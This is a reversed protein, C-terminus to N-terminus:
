EQTGAAIRRGLRRRCRTGVVAVLDDRQQKGVVHFACVVRNRGEPQVINRHNAADGLDRCQDLRYPCGLRVHEQEIGAVDEGARQGLQGLALQGEFEHDRHAVVGHRDTIVLKFVADLDEFPLLVARRKGHQARVKKVSAGIMRVRLRMRDDLTVANADADDADHPLIGGRCDDGGVDRREVHRHRRSRHLLGNGFQAVLDVQDDQQRVLALGRRHLRVGLGIRPQLAVDVGVDGKGARDLADIHQERAMGIGARRFRDHLGLCLGQDHLGVALRGM